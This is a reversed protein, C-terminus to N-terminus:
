DEEPEAPEEVEMRRVAGNAIWRDASIRILFAIDPENICADPLTSSPGTRILTSERHSDGKNSSIFGWPSFTLLTSSAGAGLDPPSGRM